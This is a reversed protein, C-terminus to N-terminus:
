KNDANKVKGNDAEGMKKWLNYIPYNIFEKKHNEDLKEFYRKVPIKRELLVYSGFRIEDTINKDELIEYIKEEEQETLDRLRKIIQLKNLEKISYSLEEEPFESSIWESFEKAILLLGRKKSEDYALILNLLFQNIQGITESYRKMKKFSSLLIDYKINNASYLDEKKLIIYQSIPFKKGEQLEIEVSFEEKFFDLLKYKGNEEKKICIIFKLKGINFVKVSFSPEKLGEILENYIFAKVLYNLQIWGEKTIENIKLDESCNLIDLLKVIDKM